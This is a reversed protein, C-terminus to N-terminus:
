PLIHNVKTDHKLELKKGSAGSLGYMRCLFEYDGTLFVSPTVEKDGAL